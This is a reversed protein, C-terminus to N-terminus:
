VQDVEMSQVYQFAECDGLTQMKWDPYPMLLPGNSMQKTPSNSITANPNYDVYTLTAPVGERWRPVALFLRRGKVKIGTIINNKPIFESSNIKAAREEPTEFKFDIGNWGYVVEYSSLPPDNKPDECKVGLFVLFTLLLPLSLRM